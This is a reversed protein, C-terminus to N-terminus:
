VQFPLNGVDLPQSQIAQTPSPQSEDSKQTSPAIKGRMYSSISKSLNSTGGGEEEMNELILTTPNFKLMYINGVGNSSRTKLMKFMMEGRAKMQPTQIIAVMNDTTNIKSIGGAIHAQGLDEINELLQAGRNLQSATIMMLNLDNAISRLEESIFKDRVFTNEASIQHNSAMLDLYDVVVFDPLFGNVIEFEKLYARLHNSNTSSEPMRKIFIRGCNEAQAKIEISTKTINRLIETQSIGSFMSDFRKAVIEESLEMSFYVGNLGQKMLNRALNSMTLSKGVGPPAAFIIMEKRNIGGALYEDLKYWQTPCSNNRELLMKLRTEPDAFYDLGINRNLSITIADRILSQIEGFKGELMLAPSAYIAKEIAKNRCFVELQDEAYLVEQKSTVPKYEILQGTEASIQEGSPAAKYKEYYDKIFNIVPKMKPDFFEAKLIPSVKTFLDNSSILYSTLLRQKELEM